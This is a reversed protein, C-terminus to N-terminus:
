DGGGTERLATIRARARSCTLRGEVAARTDAGIRCEWGDVQVGRYLDAHELESKYRCGNFGDDYYAYCSRAIIGAGVIRADHCSTGTASLDALYFFDGHGDESQSTVLRGCKLEHTKATAMSAGTAMFACSLTIVAVILAPRRQFARQPSRPHKTIPAAPM